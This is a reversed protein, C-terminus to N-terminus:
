INLGLCFETDLLCSINDLTVGPSSTSWSSGDWEEYYNGSSAFCATSSTCSAAEATMAQAPVPVLNWSTGDWRLILQADDVFGLAFCMATSVCTVNFLGSYMVATNPYSAESWSSGNWQEIFAYAPPCGNGDSCIATEAGVASCFSAALCSVDRLTGNVGALVSMSWSVGNWYEVVPANNYSDSEGPSGGVVACTDDPSCSINTMTVQLSTKPGKVISWSTGNWHEILVGSQSKQRNGIAFCSTSSICSVHALAGGSSILPSPVVEPKGGAWRWIRPENKGETPQYVGVAFCLEASACTTGKVGVDGIGRSHLVTM